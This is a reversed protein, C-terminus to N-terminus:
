RTRLTSAASGIQECLHGTIVHATYVGLDKRRSQEGWFKMHLAPIRPHRDAISKRMVLPNGSSEIAGIIEHRPSDSSAPGPLSLHEANAVKNGHPKRRRYLECHRESGNEQDREYSTGSTDPQRPLTQKRTPARNAHLEWDRCRPPHISSTAVREHDRWM